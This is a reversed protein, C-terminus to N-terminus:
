DYFDVKSIDLKEYPADISVAYFFEYDEGDLMSSQTWKDFQPKGFDMSEGFFRIQKLKNNVIMFGGGLCTNGEPILDKHLYPKDCFGGYILDGDVTIIFKRLDSWDGM